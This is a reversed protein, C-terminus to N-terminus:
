LLADADADDLVENEFQSLYNRTTNETKHGLAESIVAISKGAKKLTQAYSHRAQYLTLGVESLGLMPAIVSNLAKNVDKNFTKKRIYKQHDTKHVEDNYVPFLYKSGNVRFQSFWKIIEISPPLLKIVHVNASKNTRKTKSRIYVLKGDVINSDTLNAIDALNIGRNYYTFLFIKAAIMAKGDLDLSAMKLVLEKPIARNNSIKALKDGISYKNKGFPYYKSDLVGDAIAKNIVTRIARMYIGITTDSCNKEKPYINGKNRLWDEYDELLLVNVSKLDFTEVNKNRSKLFREFAGFSHKDTERTGVRGSSELMQLRLKFREAALSSESILRFKKNFVQFDFPENDSIFARIETNAREQLTTLNDNELKYSPYSRKFKAGEANWQEPTCYKGLGIHFRKRKQTVKLCVQFTGDKRIRSPSDWLIIQATAM